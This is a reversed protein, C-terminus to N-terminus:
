LEIAEKQIMQVFPDSSDKTIVIDIKQEELKKFIDNLIKAKDSIKLLFSFVLIDIDGGKKHDDVRSGFLFIRANPDLKM